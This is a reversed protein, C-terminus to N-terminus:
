FELRLGISPLFPLLTEYLPSAQFTRLDIGPVEPRVNVRNYVNLAELLLTLRTRSWQFSRNVRTDLRSYFPVRLTNRSEGVFDLGDRETWFGPTPVNSGARFRM